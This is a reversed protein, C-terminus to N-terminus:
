GPPDQDFVVDEEENIDENESNDDQFQIAAAAFEAEEDFEMDIEQNDNPQVEHVVHVDNLVARDQQVQADHRNQREPDPDPVQMQVYDTHFTDRRQNNGDPLLDRRSEDNSAGHEGNAEHQSSTRSGLACRRAYQRQPGEHQESSESPTASDEFDSQNSNCKRKQGRNHSSM